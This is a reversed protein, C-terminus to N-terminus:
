VGYTAVAMHAVSDDADLATHAELSCCGHEDDTCVTEQLLVGQALPLLVPLLLHGVPVAHEQVLALVQLRYHGIDLGHEDAALAINGALHCQFETGVTELGHTHIRGVVKDLVLQALIALGGLCPAAVIGLAEDLYTRGGQTGVIQCM